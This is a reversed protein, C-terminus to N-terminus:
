KELFKSTESVHRKPKKGQYGPTEFFYQWVNKNKWSNSNLIKKHLPKIKKAIM